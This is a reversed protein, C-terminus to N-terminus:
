SHSCLLTDLPLFLVLLNKIKRANPKNLYKLVNTSMMLHLLMDDFSTVHMHILWELTGDRIFTLSSSPSTPSSVTMTIMNTTIIRFHFPIKM